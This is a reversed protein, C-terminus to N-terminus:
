EVEVSEAIAIIPTSNEDVMTSFKVWVTMSEKVQDFAIEKGTAKDIIKTKASVIIEAESYDMQPTKEGIVTWTRTQKDQSMVISFIIGKISVRSAEFDEVLKKLDNYYLGEYDLQYQQAKIVLKDYEQQQREAEKVDEIAELLDKKSLGTSSIGYLAAEYEIEKYEKYYVIGFVAGAMLALVLGMSIMIKIRLDM